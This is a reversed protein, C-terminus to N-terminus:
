PTAELGKPDGVVVVTLDSARFLRRAVRNAEELTVANIIAPREKIYNMGLDSIQIGVLMNAIGRSSGLRLPFSGNLYAKATALEKATIGKEALKKWEARIVAISEAARANQTAVGGAILGSHEMPSLYAYVSYALGRKERIEEYLRSSLGGGGFVRTVLLAKYWDPDNRKIGAQGLIVVSQPIPKRVILTKGAGAAKVDPIEFRPGTAPLDGFVSDLRQKLEVESIDGVVGIVLRDRSFRKKVFGKLDAITLGAVTKDTGNARKSYPHNPFVTNSWLEGSIRRPNEKSRRLSALIQSRVREVPEQDFRPANLALKLLDFAKGREASLTRLRGSFSDRGAGFSMQAAIDELSRQFEQSKMGGAGEDLLGSAMEALGEKGDPDTASGANRFAFSMAILPVSKDQVFWAVIGKGSVVKRIDTAHSPVSLVSLCIAATIAAACRPFFVPRLSM